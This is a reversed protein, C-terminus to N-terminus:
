RRVAAVTVPKSRIAGSVTTVTVKRPTVVRWTYAGSASVTVPKGLTWKKAGQVRYRPTVATGELGLATGRVTVTPAKSGKGRKASTITISEKPGPDPAPTDRTLAVGVTMTTQAGNSAVGSFQVTFNGARQGPPVLVRGEVVGRANAKLEARLVANSDNRPAAKASGHSPTAVPPAGQWIVVVFPSFPLTNLVLLEWFDTSPFIPALSGQGPITAWPLQGTIQVDVQSSAIVTAQTGQGQTVNVEAPLGDVTGEGQGPAPPDVPEVPEPPLPTPNAGCNTPNDLGKDFNLDAPLGGCDVRIDAIGDEAEISNRGPGGRMDDRGEEGEVHDNGLGGDLLDDGLGGYLRDDGVGGRIDDNGPGGQVYDPGSGGQFVLPVTVNANMAVTTAGTTARFDALVQRPPSTFQCTLESTPTGVPTCGFTSTLLARGLGADSALDSVRVSFGASGTAEIDLSENDNMAPLGPGGILQLSDIFVRVEVLGGADANASVPFTALGSLVVAGAVGLALVKSRRRRSRGM